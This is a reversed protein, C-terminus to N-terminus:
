MKLKLFDHQLPQTSEAEFLKVCKLEGQEEENQASVGLTMGGCLCTLVLITGILKLFRKKM